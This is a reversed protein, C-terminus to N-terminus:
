PLYGALQRAVAESVSAEGGLVIIKGPKLRLLEVRISEPISDALVLLISAGDKAAVPAGSLADPFKLGNAIYVAGGTVPFKQKSIDASASFRDAGALRTVQGPAWRTLATEVAANVSAPGGLIVIKAPALRDLETRITPPIADATVLLVPAGDRAAVPAGSLADPFKLGNAIYVTRGAETFTAASIAASAAFRDAGALRTVRGLTLPVLATEVTTGVSAPGGLIVIKGPKLRELETKISAPISGPLVLLIPAGERAAVPAGSLADPFNLGSAVYATDVGPAFNAASIAASASFRDAGSLRPIPSLLSVTVSVTGGSIVGVTVRVGQSRTELSQGASLYLKHGDISGADPSLLVVSSGDDRLTLVRVGTSIGYGGLQGGAYLAGTDSGGGGRFDVYYISGTVPDTIALARRGSAAGTTSLSTVVELTNGGAPLAIAQVEGDSLAGLRLKHTVNLATPVVNSVGNMTFALGMVDYLDMYLDDFCGDSFTGTSSDLQGESITADPCFHVNSHNLGLNHGFEHAVVDLNTAGGVSVWIVGGNNGSVPASFSGVSGVGTGGCGDPVLVMLHRAATSVYHGLDPHGFAAGAEEWITHLQDCVNGSAYRRISPDPTLSVVQNKSQAKWYAGTEAVLQRVAADTIFTLPGAADAPMVVAVDITHAAAAFDAVSFEPPAASRAEPGVPVGLLDAPSVTDDALDHARVPGSEATLKPTAFAGATGGQLLALCLFLSTAIALRSGAVQSIAM